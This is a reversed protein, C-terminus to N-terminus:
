ANQTKADQAGKVEEKVKTKQVSLPSIIMNMRKGDLSPQKDVSAVEGLSAAMRQLLRLGLESHVIERGRFMVTVKVKDGEGLLKKATRTKADFDHDDIRPRMRVERLLAVRQSKRAEREKKAQEYKYKGYDLLRCVPPVATAAVEVLDLNQRRAMDRAQPLPMVGLQEGKEGVLRVERAMIRENVRLKKIIGGNVGKEGPEISM